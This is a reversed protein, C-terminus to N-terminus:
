HGDEGRLVNILYSSDATVGSSNEMALVLPTIDRVLDLMRTRVLTLVEEPELSRYRLSETLGELYKEVNM